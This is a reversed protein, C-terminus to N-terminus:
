CRQSLKKLTRKRWLKMTTLSKLQTSSKRLKNTKSLAKLSVKKRQSPKVMRIMTWTPMRLPNTSRLTRIARSLLSKGMLSKLSPVRPSSMMSSRKTKIWTIMRTLMLWLSTRRKRMTRRSMEVQSPLSALAM